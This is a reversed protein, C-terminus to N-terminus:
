LRPVQGKKTTIRYHQAFTLFSPFKPLEKSRKRKFNGRKNRIGLDAVIFM